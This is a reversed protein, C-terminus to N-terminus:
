PLNPASPALQTSSPLGQSRVLRHGPGRVVACLGGKKAMEGSPPSCHLCSVIGCGRPLATVLLSYGAPSHTQSNICNLEEFLLDHLTLPSRLPFM